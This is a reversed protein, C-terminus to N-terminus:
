RRPIGDIARDSWPKFTSSPVPYRKFAPIRVPGRQGDPLRVELIRDRKVWLTGLGPAGIVLNVDAAPPPLVNPGDWYCFTGRYTKGDDCVLEVERGAEERRVAFAAHNVMTKFSECSKDLEVLGKLWDDKAISGDKGKILARMDTKLQEMEVLAQKIKTVFLATTLDDSM